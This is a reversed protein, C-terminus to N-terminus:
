HGGKPEVLPPASGSSVGTASAISTKRPESYMKVLGALYEGEGFNPCQEVFFRVEPCV